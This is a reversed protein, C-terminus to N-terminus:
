IHNQNSSATETESYKHFSNASYNFLLTCKEAGAV